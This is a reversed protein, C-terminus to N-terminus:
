GHGRCIRHGGPLRVSQAWVPPELELLSLQVGRRGFSPDVSLQRDSGRGVDNVPVEIERLDALYRRLTRDDLGYQELLSDAHVGGPRQLESLIQVFKQSKNLLAAEPSM